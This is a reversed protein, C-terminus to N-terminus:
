IQDALKDKEKIFIYIGLVTLILGVLVNSVVLSFNITLNNLFPAHFIEFVFTLPNLYYLIRIKEPLMSLPYMVPTLYFWATLLTQTIFSTDRYKVNLAALFISLGTTLIFLWIFVGFFMILHIYTVNVFMSVILTALSFSIITNILISFIISLPIVEIPFKVKQILSRESVISIVSRTLTLSFFNWPITALLLFWFFNPTKVIQSFILGIVLTNVIPTILIWLFGLYARKYRVKLEKETMVVLFDFYNRNFYKKIKKLM